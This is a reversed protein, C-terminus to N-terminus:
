EGKAKTVWLNWSCRWIEEEKFTIPDLDPDSKSPLRISVLKDATPRDFEFVRVEVDKPIQEFNGAAELAKRAAERAEAPHTTDTCTKRLTANDQMMKWFNYTTDHRVQKAHPIIEGM